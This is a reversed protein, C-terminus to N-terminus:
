LYHNHRWGGNPYIKKYTKSDPINGKGILLDDWFIERIQLKERSREM